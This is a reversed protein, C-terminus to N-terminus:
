VSRAKEGREKCVREEREGCVREYNKRYKKRAIREERATNETERTWKGDRGRERMTQARRVPM